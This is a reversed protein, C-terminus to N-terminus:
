CFVTYYGHFLDLSCCFCQFDAADAINDMAVEYLIMRGIVVGAVFRTLEEKCFWM